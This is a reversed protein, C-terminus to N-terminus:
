RVAQRRAGIWDLAFAAGAFALGVACVASWGAWAWAAGALAAGLSGGVFFLGVFLGNLRGRAAPNLLNIARRGLTQDAVVGADLAAAGAVLLTLALTPHAAPDFRAWGAGAVGLAVLAALMAVHAGRLARREWGRDGALGAFPTVIAGTAGAFAFMAIGHLGLDFPAAALRLGIATWFASFAGMSLAASLARRQLVRETAVLVWLSRLLAAYRTSLSPARLPLKAALVAAIAIDAAAATGYFARWGATGAILSALPRSLLIGLMLGSMVNGVARGRQEDPAMSAAMPVLMQIVSSAAGAAFVAALYLAGSHTVAPLALTAACVTLTTVILRRNELLDILPVLLVLGAAYGLQPLMAILGTLGAPLRLEAAIPGTLPQAAFLDLVIVGVTASFFVTLAPTLTPAPAPAARPEGAAPGARLDAPCNM